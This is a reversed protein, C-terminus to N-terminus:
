DCSSYCFFSTTYCVFHWRLKQNVASCSYHVNSLQEWRSEPPWVLCFRSVSGWTPTIFTAMATGGIWAIIVLTITRKKTNIIRYRIPHCIALFRDFTVLTVLYLSSYFTTYAAGYVVGCQIDTRGIDAIRVGNSLVYSATVFTLALVTFLLDAVALNVLYFNTLTRMKRVFAVVTLFAVNGIFGFVFLIPYLAAFIITEVPKYFMTDVIQSDNLFLLPLVFDTPKCSSPLEYTNGSSIYDSESDNLASSSNIMLDQKPTSWMNFNLLPATTHREM